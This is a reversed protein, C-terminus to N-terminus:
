VGDLKNTQKNTKSQKAKNQKTKNQKLFPDKVAIHSYVVLSCQSTLM